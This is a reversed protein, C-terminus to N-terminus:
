SLGGRLGVPGPLLLRRSQLSAFGQPGAAAPLESPQSPRRECVRAPLLAACCAPCNLRINLASIILIVHLQYHSGIGYNRQPASVMTKLIFNQLSAGAADNAASEGGIPEPEQEARTAYPSRRIGSLLGSARGVSYYSPGAVQKYWAAAPGCALLLLLSVAPLMLRRLMELDPHPPPGEANGDGRAGDQHGSRNKYLHSVRKLVGMMMVGMM